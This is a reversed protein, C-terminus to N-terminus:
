SGGYDIFGKNIEKLKRSLRYVGCGERTRSADTNGELTTMLGFNPDAPDLWQETSPGLVLMQNLCDKLAKVIGADQEGMKIIRGPYDM